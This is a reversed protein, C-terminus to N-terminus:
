AAIVTNRGKNKADYLARDAARLVTDATDGSSPFAAVGLSATVPGLTMGEHKVGMDHVAKRIEEARHAAIQISAEPLLIAFEEGGVRCAIDSGRVYAQLLLGLRRLVVDGAEHGFTDNINKFHDLDMLIVSLMHKGRGARVLERSLFEELFRRNYLGTLPDRVSQEQLAERLKLSGLALAIEEAMASALYLSHARTGAQASTQLGQLHLLGLLEGNSLMPVCVFPPALSQAFPRVHECLLESEPNWVAHLQMRRLAWCEHLEFNRDIVGNTGWKAAHEFTKRSQRFLHMQGAAAPFLQPALEQTISCVEPASLSAKLYSSLKLVTIHQREQAELVRIREELDQASSAPSEGQNKNRRSRVKPPTPMKIAPLFRAHMRQM